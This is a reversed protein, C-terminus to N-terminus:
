GLKRYARVHSQIKRIAPSMMNSGLDIDTHQELRHLFDDWDIRAQEAYWGDFIEEAAKLISSDMM